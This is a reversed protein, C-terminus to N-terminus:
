GETAEPAVVEQEDELDVSDDPEAGEDPACRDHCHHNTQTYDCDPDRTVRCTGCGALLSTSLSAVVTLAALLQKSM